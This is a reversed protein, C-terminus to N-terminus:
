RRSTHTPAKHPLGSFSLEGCSQNLMTLCKIQDDSSYWVFNELLPNSLMAQETPTYFLGVLSMYRIKKKKPSAWQGNDEQYLVKKLDCMKTFTSQSDVASLLSMLSFRDPIYMDDIEMINSIPHRGSVCYLHVHFLLENVFQIHGRLEEIPVCRSQEAIKSYCEMATLDKRSKPFVPMSTIESAKFKKVADLYNSLLMWDGVHRSQMFLIVNNYMERAQKIAKIAGILKVRDSEGPLFIGTMCAGDPMLMEGLKVQTWAVFDKKEKELVPDSPCGHTLTQMCTYVVISAVIRIIDSTLAIAHYRREKKPNMGPTWPPSPSNVIRRREESTLAM